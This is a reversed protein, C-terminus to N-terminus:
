LFLFRSFPGVDDDAGFCINRRVGEGLVPLWGAETHFQRLGDGFDHSQIDLDPHPGPRLYALGQFVALDLDDRSHGVRLIPCSKDIERGRVRDNLVRDGATLETSSSRPLSSITIRPSMM